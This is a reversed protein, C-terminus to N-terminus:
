NNQASERRLEVAAKAENWSDFKFVNIVRRGFVSRINSYRELQKETLIIFDDQLQKINFCSGDLKNFYVDYSEFGSKDIIRFHTYRQYFVQDEYDTCRKTFIAYNGDDLDICDGGRTFIKEMEYYYPTKSYARYVKSYISDDSSGEM